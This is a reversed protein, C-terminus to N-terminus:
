SLKRQFASLPTHTSTVQLWVRWAKGETEMHYRWHDRLLTLAQSWLNPRLHITGILKPQQWLSYIAQLVAFPYFKADAPFKSTQCIRCIAGGVSPAFAIQEGEFKTGCSACSILHPMWGLRRLLRIQVAVLWKIPPAGEELQRVFWLVENFLGEDPAELPVALEILESAVGFATLTLIDRRIRTLIREIRYDTVRDFERARALWFTAVVGTQTAPALRNQPVQAGQALALVKGREKTLLVLLRDKERWALTRLVIAKVPVTRPVLMEGEGYALCYCATKVSSCHM